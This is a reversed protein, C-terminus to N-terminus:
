RFLGIVKDYLPITLFLIWTPHWVMKVCGIYLFVFLVLASYSFCEVRRKRIATIASSVVPELLFILWGPHWLHYLFGLALYLIVALLGLPLDVQHDQKLFSEGGFMAKGGPKQLDDVSIQYLEALMAFQGMDPSINGSEWESVTERSVGLKGALAELSLNNAKRLEMLRDAIEKDM